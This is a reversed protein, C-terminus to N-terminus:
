ASILLSLIPDDKLSPNIPNNMGALRRPTREAMV